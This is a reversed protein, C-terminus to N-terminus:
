AVDRPFRAGHDAHGRARDRIGAVGRRRDFRTVAHGFTGAFGEGSTSIKAVDADEIILYHDLANLDNAATFLGGNAFTVEGVYDGPMGNLDATGGNIFTKFSTGFQDAANWKFTAGPAVEISGGLLATADAKVPLVTGEDVYTKGTYSNAPARSTPKYTGAGTKRLGQSGGTSNQLVLTNNAGVTVEPTSAAAFTIKEGNVTLTTSSASALTIKGVTVASAVSVAYTGSAASFDAEAGSVNPVVNGVWNAADNWSGGSTGKWIFTDAQAACWTMAVASVAVSFCAGVSRVRRITRCRIMKVEEAKEKPDPRCM